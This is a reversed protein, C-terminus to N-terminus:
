MGRKGHQERKVVDLRSCLEDLEHITAKKTKRAEAHLGSMEDLALVMQELQQTTRLLEMQRVDSWVTAAELTAVQLACTHGVDTSCM